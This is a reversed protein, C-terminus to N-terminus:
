EALARRWSKSGFRCSFVALVIPLFRHCALQEELHWFLNINMITEKLMFNIKKDKKFFGLRM